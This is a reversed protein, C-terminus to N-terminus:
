LYTGFSGRHQTTQALPQTAEIGGRTMASSTGAIWLRPNRSDVDRKAVFLEENDAPKRSQRFLDPLSLDQSQPHLILAARTVKRGTSKKRIIKPTSAATMNNPM